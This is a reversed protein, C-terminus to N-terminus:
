LSCLWEPRRDLLKNAILESKLIAFLDTAVAPNLRYSIATITPSEILIAKVLRQISVAPGLSITEYGEAEAQNLFHHLGGVHVCTGIAAGLIKSKM